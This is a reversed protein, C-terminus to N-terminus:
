LGYEYNINSLCVSNSLATLEANSFTFMHIFNSKKATQLRQGSLIHLYYYQM